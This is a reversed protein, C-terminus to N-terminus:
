ACIKMLNIANKQTSFLSFCVRYFAFFFALFCFLFLLLFSGPEQNQVPINLIYTYAAFQIYGCRSEFGNRIHFLTKSCACFLHDTPLNKKKRMLELLKLSDPYGKRNLCLLNIENIKVRPNYYYKANFKNLLNTFHKSTFNNTSSFSFKCSKTQSRM